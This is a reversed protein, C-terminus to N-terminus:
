CGQIVEVVDEGTEPNPVITMIRVTCNFLSEEVVVRVIKEWETSVFTWSFWGKHMLIGLRNKTAIYYTERDSWFAASKLIAIPEEEAPLYKKIRKEIRM